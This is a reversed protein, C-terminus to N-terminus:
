GADGVGEAARSHETHPQPIATLRTRLRVPEHATPSGASGSTASASSSRGTGRGFKAARERLVEVVLANYETALQDFEEQLDARVRREYQQGALAEDLRQALRVLQSNYIEVSRNLRAERAEVERLRRDHEESLRQRTATLDTLQGKVRYEHRIIWRKVTGLAVRAVAIMPILCGASFLLVAGVDEPKFKQTAALTLTIGAGFGCLTAITTRCPM